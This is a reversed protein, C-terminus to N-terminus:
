SSVLLSLSLEVSIMSCAGSTSTSEIARGEDDITWAPSFTVQPTDIVLRPPSVTVPLRSYVKSPTVAM